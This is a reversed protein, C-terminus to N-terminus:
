ETPPLVRPWYDLKAIRTFLDRLVHGPMSRLLAGTSLKGGLCLLTEIIDRIPVPLNRHEEKSWPARIAFRWAIAPHRNLYSTESAVGPIVIRELKTKPIADYLAIRCTTCMHDTITLHVVRSGVLADVLDLTQQCVVIMVELHAIPVSRICRALEKIGWPMIRYSRCKFGEPRIQYALDVFGNQAVASSVNYHSVSRSALSEVLARAIPRREERRSLTEIEDDYNPSPFLALVERVDEETAGLPIQNFFGSTHPFGGTRVTCGLIRPNMWLLYLLGAETFLSPRKTYIDDLLAQCRLPILEIMCSADLVHAYSAGKQLFKRIVDHRRLRAARLLISLTQHGLLDQDKDYRIWEEVLFWVTDASAEVDLACFAISSETPFIKRAEAREFMQALLAVDNREAANLVEKLTVSCM